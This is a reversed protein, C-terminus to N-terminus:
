KENDRKRDTLLVDLLNGNGSGRLQRMAEITRKRKLIEAGRNKDEFIIRIRTKSPLQAQNLLFQLESITSNIMTSM